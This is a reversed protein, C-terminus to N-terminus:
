ATQTLEESKFKDLHNRKLEQERHFQWYDEFDGSSRLSRLKLIAEASKLRWRAGTIGLRDNILHRCAGEIVGSAIPYGKELYTAYKLYARNNQLYSACIDVAKRAKQTFNKRTASRRMGAGVEVCKGELVKLAQEEVWCTAESSGVAHFCHAAKWLYELVHIFDVIVTASAESAKLKEHITKLPNIEGDVVVVWDRRQDPDRSLAEEIAESVVKKEGREVSAWVRKNKVEPRKPKDEGSSSMVQEPSRVSAGVTYVAAATAMRKRHAKEGPGLRAKRPEEAQAQAAKKTAPRLDATHMVMGKSDTSVVLLDDSVKEEAMEITGDYFAEFDQAAQVVIDECQRKPIHGGTTQNISNVCEDFSAKSAEIAVRQALGDSYKSSRLNLTKDLPYLVQRGPASYGIRHCVVEGFVTSLKRQVGHRRHTHSVGEHDVMAVQAVESETHLDLYGQFLRRLLEHGEALLWQETKDHAQTLVEVSMLTKILTNFQEQASFFYTDFQTPDAYTQKM